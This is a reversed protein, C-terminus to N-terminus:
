ARAAGGSAGRYLREVAPAVQAHDFTRRVTEVNDIPPGSSGNFQTLDHVAGEVDNFTRLRTGNFATSQRLLMPLKRAAADLVSLPFGEYRATHLYVFSRDLETVLEQKGLWGTVTVGRDELNQRLERDGDGLWVFQFRADDVAQAIEAFFRPDKQLRIEGSMVVRRSGSSIRHDRAAPLHSRNPVLVPRTRGSIQTSLEVERPSVCAIATANRALGREALRFARRQLDSRSWDEFAYCHPQYVVVPVDSRRWRGYVGAWSSHLHLVDYKNQAAIRQVVHGRKLHGAPLEAVWTFRGDDDPREFGHWLLHHEYDPAADVIGEIARAVGTSWCETVHLVRM